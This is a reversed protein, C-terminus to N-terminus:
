LRKEFIRVPGYLGSELSQKEFALAVKHYGGTKNEPYKDLSKTNVYQNAFTNVVTVRLENTGSKVIGEVPFAFPGWSKMGLDTGNLIVGCNYRVQGLDLICAKKAQEEGCEFDVKYEAYGSFDDGLRYRWDGLEIPVFDDKLNGDMEFIEFEEMGITYSKTRRCHWGEDIALIESGMGPPEPIEPLNEDSFFILASGAYPLELPISCKGGSYSARQSKHCEGTEPDLIYPPMTEDFCVVTSTGDPGENTVFYLHGNDLIRKCVRIRGDSPQVTVIPKIYEGIGGFDLAICNEPPLSHNENDIWLVRGGNAAFRSLKERSKEAMWCNRSVCVTEYRMPGVILFGDAVETEGSELLDDDIFDFDCQRCLLTEALMDNSDAIRELEPGGAWIDRVPYYVATKVAPRGLSLLYSLRATYSHYLRMHGWQPNSPIFMPRCGGMFQGKPTSYSCSMTMINLGRVYQYDTLWKMQELTLGSGYIAFSETLAWPKGTQHAASSAYKPYHHNEDPQRDPYIVETEGRLIKIQRGTGPYIHRWVTDIGPIDFKRLMRLAHGFGGRAGLTTHEGEIHGVSLLKNENCWKQIEGFYVDAFRRSWWDYYDVRVRMNELCDDDGFIAPLHDLLDYGKAKKFEEDLGDTWPPVIVRSEDNFVAMVTTGFYEGIAKKYEEHTLRIFERATRPNLLDPYRIPKFPADSKNLIGSIGYIEVTTGDDAIEITEGPYIRKAPEGCGSVFAALFGEPIQVAEGRKPAIKNQTIFKQGLEPNEDVVRGCVSGSPWGPEDSLWHVMNLKQTEAILEKYLGMYEETLYEPELYTPMSDPRFRGTLPLAWVTKAGIENMDGLQSFLEEKSLRDNWLWMYGPWYFAHPEAFQMSDFKDSSPLATHM